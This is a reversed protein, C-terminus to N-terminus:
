WSLLFCEQTHLLRHQLRTLERAGGTMLLITDAWLELATLSNLHSGCQAMQKVVNVEGM